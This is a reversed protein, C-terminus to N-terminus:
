YHKLWYKLPEAQSSLFGCLALYGFPQSALTADLEYYVGDRARRSRTAVMGCVLLWAAAGWSWRWAGVPRSPRRRWWQALPLSLGAAAAAARASRFLM